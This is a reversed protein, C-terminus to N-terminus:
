YRVGAHLISCGPILRKFQQVGQVTVHTNSVDVSKLRKHSILFGFSQDNINTNQINLSELSAATAKMNKFALGTLLPTSEVDLHKLNDMGKVLDVLAADNFGPIFAFELRELSKINNIARVGPLSIPAYSLVLIKLTKLGGKSIAAGLGVGSIGARSLYLEELGPLKALSAMGADTLGPCDNLYLVKLTSANCILDLGADTLDTMRNLVLTELAPLKGIATYEAESLRCSMLELRKLAPLAALHEIGAATIQTSNVTLTQLAGVRQLLQIGADTVPTHDLSLKQLAPLKAIEAMGTNTVTSGSANIETIAELGSAVSTLQALGQDTMQQPSLGKFWAVTQAPDPRMVAPAPQGPQVEVSGPVTRMQAPAPKNGGTMEDWTPVKGCGSTGMVLAVLILFPRHCRSRAEFPNDWRQM